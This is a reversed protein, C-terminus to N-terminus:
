HVYKNSEEFSSPVFSADAPFRVRTARTAPSCEVVSGGVSLERKWAIVNRKRRGPISGPDGAHCALMRGSFWRRMNQSHRNAYIVTMDNFRESTTLNVYM